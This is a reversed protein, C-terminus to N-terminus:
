SCSLHSKEFGRNVLTNVVRRRLRKRNVNSRYGLRVKVKIKSLDLENLEPVEMWGDIATKMADADGEFDLTVEKVRPTLLHPLVACREVGWPLGRTHSGEFEVEISTHSGEFEVVISTASHSWTGVPTRVECDCPTKIHVCLTHCRPLDFLTNFDEGNDAVEFHAHYDGHHVTVDVNSSMDTQLVSIVRPANPVSLKITRARRISLRQIDSGQASFPSFFPLLDVDSCRDSDESPVSYFKWANRFEIWDTCMSKDVANKVARSVSRLKLKDAHDLEDLIEDWLHPFTRCDLVPM